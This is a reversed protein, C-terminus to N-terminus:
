AGNVFSLYYNEDNTVGAPARQWMLKDTSVVDKVSGIHVILNRIDWKLWLNKGTEECEDILVYAVTNKIIAGRYHSGHVGGVAIEHTCGQAELWGCTVRMFEFINENSKEIFFGSISGLDQQLALAM